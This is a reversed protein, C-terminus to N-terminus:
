CWFIQQDIQLIEKEQKLAKDGEVINIVDYIQM